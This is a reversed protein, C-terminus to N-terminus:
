LRAGFDLGAHFCLIGYARNSGAGTPGRYFSLQRTLNEMTGRTAEMHMGANSVSVFNNGKADASSAKRKSGNKGVVLAYVPLERPERHVKLQFRDALLAQLM